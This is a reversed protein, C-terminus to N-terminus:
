RRSRNRDGRLMADLSAGAEALLGAVLPHNSGSWHASAAHCDIRSPLVRMVARTELTSRVRDIVNGVDDRRIGTLLAAFRTNDIRGVVDSDRLVDRLTDAFVAHDNPALGSGDARAGLQWLILVADHSQRVAVNLAYQAFQMFARQNPLQTDVDITASRQAALELAAVHGLDRLLTVEEGDLSRPNPDAVCLAGVRSGDPAALPCGAYFRIHPAQTVFPNGSFRADRSTDPVILMSDRLITHACFSVDRPTETVDLGVSSKFWQRQADILTVTSIAVGLLRSALRTIVDFRAEAPTDLVGLMHLAALRRPEDAPQAPSPM